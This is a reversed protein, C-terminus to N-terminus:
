TLWSGDNGLALLLATGRPLVVEDEGPFFHYRDSRTSIMTAQMIPPTITSTNTAHRTQKTFEGSSTWSDM